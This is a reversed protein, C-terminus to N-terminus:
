AGTDSEDLVGGLAYRIEARALEEGIGIGLDILQTCLAELPEVIRPMSPSTIALRYLPEDNEDPAEDPTAEDPHATDYADRVRNPVTGRAPCHMGQEAAWTRIEANTAM